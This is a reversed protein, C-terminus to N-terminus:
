IMLVSESCKTREFGCCRFCRDLHWSSRSILFKQMRSNVTQPNLILRDYTEDKPVAFMGVSEEFNIEDVRFIKCAQKSDWKTALRLLEAKSCHVKGRPQHPWQDEPLRVRSPDVFADRVITDEFFPLPDFQPSHAWKIRDAVVPKSVTSPLKVEVGEFSCSHEQHSSESPNVKNSCTPAKSYPDLESAIQKAFEFLDVERCEPLEEACNIMAAFKVSCRGLAESTLPGPRMFHDVLRELRCIMQFQDESMFAGVCAAPPPKIPHGLCEWNLVCVIKQVLSARLSLFKRRRRRKPSLRSSGTWRWCPVPCPWLDSSRSAGHVTRSQPQMAVRTFESLGVFAAESQHLLCEIVTLFSIPKCSPHFVSPKPASDCFQDFSRDAVSHSCLSSDSSDDHNVRSGISSRLSSSGNSHGVHAGGDAAWKSKRSVLHSRADRGGGQNKKKKKKLWPKKLVNSEDTEEEDKPSPKNGKLRNELYDLDKLYAVNGAVWPASALKAYPKLGVRKRNTQIIALNPDPMAALLWAFNCRGQDLAMQEIMMLGRAMLSMAVENQEEFSVQWSVAMYHAVFTLIRQDGLPIRREVYERMLGSTVQDLPVGLDGAANSMIQHGTGALDEMTKIYADRAVCGKVGGGSSGQENGLAASIRDRPAGVLKQTLVATQKMQLALLRHLPDTSSGLIQNLEEEDAAGSGM